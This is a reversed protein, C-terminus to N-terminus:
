QLWKPRSKIWFREIPHVLFDPSTKVGLKHCLFPLARGVHDREPDGIILRQIHHRYEQRRYNAM